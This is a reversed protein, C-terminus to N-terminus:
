PPRILGALQGAWILPMPGEDRLGLRSERASALNMAAMKEAGLAATALLEEKAAENAFHLKTRMNTDWGASVTSVGVVMVTLSLAGRMRAGLTLFSKM